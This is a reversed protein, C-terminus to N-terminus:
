DQEKLINVLDEFKLKQQSNKSLDKLTYKKEKLENEGVLILYKYGKKVAYKIIKDVKSDEATYIELDINQTRLKKSLDLVNSIKNIGAALVFRVNKFDPVLNQLKLAELTRDFGLGFGTAPIDRGSIKECLNDYREGGLLSSLSGEVFVEWIPGTSYSFSRIITPDFEYYKKDFGYSKLYSLIINISESPKSDKVKGLFRIAEEKTYGKFIIENIVGDDGIKKLKDISALVTYPIEKIIERDNILVKFNKLGLSKYIDITLAIVEADALSDKVGFVDADCQLFERYRGKQPKEARFATQIQYRKYPLVIENINQGVYRCAPVTQDYRLAVERNGNDKFKYFLKEDEGIQGSFIELPEITPTELPEFGWRKFVKMIKEKLWERELADVNAYDRFGKLIQKKTDM